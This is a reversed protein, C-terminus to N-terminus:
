SVVCDIQGQCPLTRLAKTMAKILYTMTGYSGSPASDYFHVCIYAAGQCSKGSACCLMADGNVEVQEDLFIKNAAHVVQEVNIVEDIFEVVKNDVQLGSVKYDVLSGWVKYDVLSGWVKYDVLS